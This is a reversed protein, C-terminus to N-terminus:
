GRPLKPLRARRTVPRLASGCGVGVPRQRISAGTDTTRPTPLFLATFRCSICPAVMAALGRLVLNLLGKATERCLDYTHLVSELRAAADDLMAPLVHQYHKLMSVQ